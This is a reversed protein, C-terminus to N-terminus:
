YKIGDAPKGDKNTLRLSLRWNEKNQGVKILLVSGGKPVTVAIKDQDFAISRAVKKRFVEKGDLWVALPGDSGLRLQVQRAASSSVRVRAYAVIDKKAEVVEPLVLVGAPDDTVFKQWTVKEDKEPGHAVKFGEEGANPFPGCVEWKTAVGYRSQLKLPTDLVTVKSLLRRARTFSLPGQPRALALYISAAEKKKGTQELCEALTLEASLRTDAALKTKLADRLVGTAAQRDGVSLHTRALDLRNAPVDPAAAVLRRYTGVAGPVDRLLLQARALRRLKDSDLGETTTRQLEAIVESRKTILDNVHLISSLGATAWATRTYTQPFKRYDAGEGVPVWTGDERQRKSLFTIAAAVHPENRTVGASALSFLARGTGIINSEKGKQSPWGGDSNQLDFLRTKLKDVEAAGAGSLATGMFAFAIDATSALASVDLSKQWRQIAATTQDAKASSEKLLVTCLVGTMVKDAVIVRNTYDTAWKGEKSQAALLRKVVYNTQESFDKSATKSGLAFGSGVVAIISVNKDGEALHHCRRCAQSGIPQHGEPPAGSTDPHLHASVFRANQDYEHQNVVYGNRASLGTVFAGLGNAHCAFCGRKRIWDVSGHTLFDVAKQISDREALQKTLEGAQACSAGMWTALFLVVAPVARFVVRMSFERFCPSTPYWVSVFADAIEGLIGQVGEFSSPDNPALRGM